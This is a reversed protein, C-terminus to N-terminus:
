RSTAGEAYGAKFAEVLNIDQLRSLRYSLYWRGFATLVQLKEDSTPQRPTHPSPRQDHVIDILLREDPTM